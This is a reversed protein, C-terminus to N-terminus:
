KVWNGHFGFPMHVPLRLRAIPGRTVDKADFIAVHSRKELGDYVDVLLYGDDEEVGGQRPAFVPEGVFQHSPFDYKDLQNTQYDLKAVGNHWPTSHTSRALYAFRYPRGQWEPHTQPFEYNADDLIKELRVGDALARMRWISVTPPSDPIEAGEMALRFSQGGATATPDVKTAAVDIVTHGDEDYANVFHWVQFPDPIESTMVDPSHRDIVLLRAPIKSNFKLASMLPSIGAMAKLMGSHTIYQPQLYIVISKETLAWDHFYPVGPLKPLEVERRSRVTGNSDLCVARVKTKMGPIIALFCLDDNVPDRKAHALYVTGPNQWDLDVEGATSLDGNLYVPRQWDDTVLYGGKWPYVAVSAQNPGNRLSNWAGPALTEITPFLFRGAAQEAKFEETQIHRNRFSPASPDLRFERLMGGASDLMSRRRQGGLSDYGFPGMRLYRGELGKPWEGELEWNISYETRQSTVLGAYLAPEDLGRWNRADLPLFKKAIAPGTLLALCSQIKSAHLNLSFTVLLLLIFKM